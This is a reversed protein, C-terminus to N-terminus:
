DIFDALSDAEEELVVGMKKADGPTLGLRSCYKLIQENYQLDNLYYPSKLKNTQGGRNTYEIIMKMGDEKKWEARNRDRNELISALTEIAIAFEDRYTGLSKMQEVISEKHKKANM